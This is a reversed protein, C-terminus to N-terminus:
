RKVTRRPARNSKIPAPEDDLGDLDESYSTMEQDVTGWPKSSHHGNTSALAAIEDEFEDDINAMGGGDLRDGDAVKLVARLYASIGKGGSPHKYTAFDVSVHAVCGSYIEDFDFEPEGIKVVQGEEVYALAPGPYKTFTSLDSYDTTSGKSYGRPKTGASIFMANEFGAKESRDDDGDRLPNWLNNKELWVGGKPGWAQNALGQLEGKVDAIVDSHKDKDLLITVSYKPDSMQGNESKIQGPVALHCYCIRVNQFKYRISAKKYQTTAM